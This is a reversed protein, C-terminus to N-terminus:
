EYDQVIELAKWGTEIELFVLLLDQGPEPGKRDECHETQKREEEKRDHVVQDEGIVNQHHQDPGDHDYQGEVSPEHHVGQVQFQRVQRFQLVKRM